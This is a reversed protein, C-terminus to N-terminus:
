VDLQADLAHREIFKRRPEVVEGMLLNFLQDAKLADEVTVQKMMRREPDMTTEWLQDASMEGLGKYRSVDMGRKGLEGTAELVAYLTDAPVTEKGSVLRFRAPAAPDAPPLFDSVALGTTKLEAAVKEMEHAILLESLVLTTEPINSSSVTIDEEMIEVPQGTRERAALFEAFGADDPFYLTKGGLTARFKPFVGYQERLKTFEGLTLGRRQLVKVYRDMRAVLDLLKRLDAGEFARGAKGNEAM